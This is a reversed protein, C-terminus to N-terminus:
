QKWSSVFAQQHGAIIELRQKRFHLFNQIGSLITITRKPEPILSASILTPNFLPNHSECLHRRCGYVNFLKFVINRCDCHDEQLHKASAILFCVSFQSVSM